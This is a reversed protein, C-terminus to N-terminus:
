LPVEGFGKRIESLSSSSDERDSSSHDLEGCALNAVFCEASDFVMGIADSLSFAGGRAGKLLM